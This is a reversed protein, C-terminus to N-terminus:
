IRGQAGRSGQAAGRGGRASRPDARDQRGAGQRDGGPVKKWIMIAIVVLMALASSCRRPSASARRSPTRLAAPQRARSPTRRNTRSLCPIRGEGGSRRGERDVKIGTLRAVMEQTAEAAVAEIEAARRTPRLASRRRPRTSRPASRTPQRRPGQRPRAARQGAQGGPCSPPKPAAADMRARWAAETEEAAARAAQASWITPSRAGRAARVTSQIKPVMGRAIGFYIIGFVVLLWFLQSFFIEALQNIQPM